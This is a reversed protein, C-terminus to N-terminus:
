KERKVLVTGKEDRITYGVKFEVYDTAAVNKADFSSTGLRVYVTGNNYEPYAYVEGNNKEFKKGNEDFLFIAADKQGRTDPSYCGGVPKGWKRDNAVHFAADIQARLGKLYAEQKAEPTASPSYFAKIKDIGTQADLLCYKERENKDPNVVDVIMNGFAEGNSARLTPGFGVMFPTATIAENDAYDKHVVTKAFYVAPVGADLLERKVRQLARYQLNREREKSLGAGM